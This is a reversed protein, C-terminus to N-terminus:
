RHSHAVGSSFTAPESFGLGIKSFGNGVNSDDGRNTTMPPPRPSARRALLSDASPRPLGGFAPISPSATTRDTTTPRVLGRGNRKRQWASAGEGPDMPHFCCPFGRRFDSIGTMSKRRLFAQSRRIVGERSNATIRRSRTVGLSVLMALGQRAPSMGDLGCAAFRPRAIRALRSPIAGTQGWTWLCTVVNPVSMDGAGTEQRLEM